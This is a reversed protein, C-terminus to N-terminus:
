FAEARRLVTEIHGSLGVVLLSQGTAFAFSGFDGLIEARHIADESM